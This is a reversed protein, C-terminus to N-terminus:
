AVVKPNMERGCIGCIIPVFHFSHAQLLTSIAAHHNTLSEGLYSDDYTGQVQRTQIQGDVSLLFYSPYYAKM